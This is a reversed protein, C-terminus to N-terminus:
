LLMHTRRNTTRVPSILVAVPSVKVSSSFYCFCWCQKCERFIFESNYKSSIKYLNLKLHGDDAKIVLQHYFFTDLHQEFEKWRTDAWRQNDLREWVSHLIMSSIDTMQTHLLYNQQINRCTLYYLSDNPWHVVDYQCKQVELRLLQDNTLPRGPIYNQQSVVDYRLSQLELCRM